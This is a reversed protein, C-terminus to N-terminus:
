GLLVQSEAAAKNLKGMGRENEAKKKETDVKLADLEAELKGKHEKMERKAKLKATVYEQERKRDALQLSKLDVKAQRAKELREEIIDRVDAYTLLQDILCSIVKLKDGIPLEVVNQHALARLIHPQHLRFYLGPDDESCYGGRQQFRWLAGGDNIRAGSSLLHLRLVETVTLPYIPLRNVHCGQHKFPYNAAKSALYTATTLNLGQILDEPKPGVIKPFILIIKEIVCISYLKGTSKDLATKYQESEEDQCNFLATLLMQIVDILPGAVENETLAREMLELTLGGPFFKNTKCIKSFTNVFQLVMLVDGFHEDAIKSEVPLFEPLPKQDELELDEKPKYWDRLYMSFKVNDERRKQKEALKEEAKQQKLQETRKRFEEERQKMKELLNNNGGGKRQNEGETRSLFKALTEQRPKKGNSLMMLAKEAKKGVNFDPLPGDFIDEFKVDDIGFKELVEAKVVWIGQENPEVYQKLFLRLRERSFSGRKKRRIQSSSVIMLETHDEENADLHQVQYKYLSAPPM